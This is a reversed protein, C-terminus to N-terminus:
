NEYQSFFDDPNNDSYIQQCVGSCVAGPEMEMSKSKIDGKIVSGKKLLVRGNIDLNGKVGGEIIIDKAKIDGIVVSGTKVHVGKVAEINGVVKTEELVVAAGYISGSVKGRIVISSTDAHSIIDGNVVGSKFIAVNTQADINGDVQGEVAVGGASTIGGHIVTGLAVNTNGLDKKTNNRSTELKSIDMVHRNKDFEKVEEKIPEMIPAVDMKKSNKSVSKVTEKEEDDGVIFSMDEFSAEEELFADNNIIANDFSFNEPNGDPNENLLADLEKEEKKVDNKKKKDIKSETSIQNLEEVDVDDFFGM